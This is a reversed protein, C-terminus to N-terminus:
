RKGFVQVWYRDGKDSKAVAVGIEDYEPKLINERHPESNM